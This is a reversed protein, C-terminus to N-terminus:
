TVSGVPKRVCEPCRHRTGHAAWGASAALRWVAAPDHPADVPVAFLADCADCWLDVRVGADCSTTLILM